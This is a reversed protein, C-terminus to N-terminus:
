KKWIVEYMVKQMIYGSNKCSDCYKNGIVRNRCIPCVIKDHITVNYTKGEKLSDIFDKRTFESSSEVLLPKENEVYESVVMKTNQTTIYEYLNDTKIVYIGLISNDAIQIKQSTKLSFIRSNYIGPAYFSALFHGPEINQVIKITQKTNEFKKVPVRRQIEAIADYLEILKERRYLFSNEGVRSVEFIKTATRSVSEGGLRGLDSVLSQGFVTSTFVLSIILTIIKM